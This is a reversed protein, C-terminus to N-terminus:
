STKFLLMLQFRERVKGYGCELFSVLANLINGSSSNLVQDQQARTRVCGAILECGMVAFNLLWPLAGM